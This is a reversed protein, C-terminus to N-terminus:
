SKKSHNAQGQSITSFMKPNKNSSFLLHWYRGLIFGSIGGGLLLLANWADGKSELDIYPERVQIGAAKSMHKNVAEDMGIFGSKSESALVFNASPQSVAQLGPQALAPTALDLWVEALCFIMFLAMLNIIPTRMKPKIVGLEELVEPRQKFCYQLALGTVVMEALAIPLQTPLYAAYIAALYGTFNYQPSPAHVLTWALILGSMSYVAFDGLLGALGGGLWLPLGLKRAGRFTLWGTVCGAFGLTLLNAGWTSFGGHAFFAAQLLLTIGALGIGVFPGMLIAILPTGCPHSCTGTFAPLPILSVFFILAGGMGILPKKDPFKATFKKMRWTGLGMLALGGATYAAAPYGIIIGESIHMTSGRFPFDSSDVM